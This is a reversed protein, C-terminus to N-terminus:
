IIHHNFNEAPYEDKFLQQNEFYKVALIQLYSFIKYM